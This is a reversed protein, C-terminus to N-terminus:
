RAEAAAPHRAPAVAEAGRVFVGLTLLMIAGTNPDTGMGGLVGFEQGFYWALAVWLATLLWLVRSGPRVLWAVGLVALVVVLAANWLSPNAQLAAGFAAVPLALPAPQPMQSMGTVFGSLADSQWFGAAPWAQLLANLLLVAAIVRGAARHLFGSQWAKAPLLAAGAAIVYILVSGPAGSLWGGGVFIGGMAEGFIWVILGWAISTWLATRRLQGDRGLLLALGIGLQIFTAFVNASIPNIGWVQVGFRLLDALPGPEGAMLPAVVGSLFRTVMLPQTQLLGDLAWLVGLGRILLARESIVPARESPRRPWFRYALAVLVALVLGTVVLQRYFIAVAVAPPLPPMQMQALNPM